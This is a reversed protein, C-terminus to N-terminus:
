WPVQARHAQTKCVRCCLDPAQWITSGLGRSNQEGKKGTVSLLEHVRPSDNKALGPLDHVVAGPSDEVGRQLLPFDQSSGVPVVQDITELFEEFTVNFCIADALDRAGEEILKASCYSAKVGGPKSGGWVEDVNCQREM